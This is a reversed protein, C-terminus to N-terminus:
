TARSSAASLLIDCARHMNSASRRSMTQLSCNRGDRGIQRGRQRSGSRRDFGNEIVPDREAQERALVGLGMLAVPQGDGGIVNRALAQKFEPVAPNEGDDMLRHGLAAPHRRMLVNGFLDARLALQLAEMRSQLLRFRLGLARRRLGPRRMLLKDVGRVQHRFAQHQEVGLIPMDQPVMAVRCHIALRAVGDDGACTELIRQARAHRLAIIDVLAALLFPEGLPQGTVPPGFVGEFQLKRAVAPHPDVLAACGIAAADAHADVNGFRFPALFGQPQQERSVRQRHPDEVLLGKLKKVDVVGRDGMVAILRSCNRAM